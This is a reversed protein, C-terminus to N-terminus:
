KLRMSTPTHVDDLYKDLKYYIKNQDPASLNNYYERHKAQEQLKKDLDVVGLTMIKAYLMGIDKCHYLGTLNYERKYKKIRDITLKKM